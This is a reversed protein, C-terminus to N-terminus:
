LCSTHTSTSIPLSPSLLPITKSTKTFALNIKDALVNAVSIMIKFDGTSVKDLWLTNCSVEKEYTLYILCIM